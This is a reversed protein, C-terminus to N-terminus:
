HNQIVTGIARMRFLTRSLAFKRFLKRDYKPEGDEFKQDKFKDELLNAFNKVVDYERSLGDKSTGHYDEFLSDFLKVDPQFEKTPYSM